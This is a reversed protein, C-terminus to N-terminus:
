VDVAISVRVRDDAGGVAIIVHDRRANGFAPQITAAGGADRVTRLRAELRGGDARRQREADALRRPAREEESAEVSDRESRRRRAAEVTPPGPGERRGCATMLARELDSVQSSDWWAGLGAARNARQM